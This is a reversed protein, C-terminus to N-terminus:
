RKGMCSHHRSRHYGQWHTSTKDMLAELETEEIKEKELLLRVGKDLIDKLHVKLIEERGKKYPRDVLINREFRGPRLLAQYLIEPRNTAALIVVGNNPDFEDMEVLLLNWFFHIDSHVLFAIHGM